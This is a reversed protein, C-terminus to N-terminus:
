SREASRRNNRDAQSRVLTLARAEHVSDIGIARPSIRTKKLSKHPGAKPTYTVDRTLSKNHEGRGNAGGTVLSLIDMDEVGIILNREGNGTRM